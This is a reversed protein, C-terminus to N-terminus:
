MTTPGNAVKYVELLGGRRSLGPHSPTKIDKIILKDSAIWDGSLFKTLSERLSKKSADFVSKLGVLTEAPLPEAEPAAACATEHKLLNSLAFGHLAANLIADSVVSLSPRFVNHLMLVYAFVKEKDPGDLMAKGMATDNLHVASALLAQYGIPQDAKNGNQLVKLAESIIPMQKTIINGIKSFNEPFEAEPINWLDALPSLENPITPCDVVIIPDPPSFDAEVKYNNHRIETVVSTLKDMRSKGDMKTKYDAFTQKCNYMLLKEIFVAQQEASLSTVHEVATNMAPLIAELRKVGRELLLDAAFAMKDTFAFLARTAQGLRIKDAMHLLFITM